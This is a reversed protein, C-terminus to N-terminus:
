VAMLLAALAKPHSLMPFHGADLEIYPAGLREATRRQHAESPNVGQICNIVTASWAHAWFGDLENPGATTGVPHPTYRAMAFARLDTPLAAFMRGDMDERSPARTFETIVYVMSKSPIVIDASTEGPQPVLADAFVLHGVRDRAFEAIRAAVLGGSSTTVLVVNALDQLELFKAIEQAQSAVTIGARAQHTREGCGDLTPAYVEHGAASLVQVTPKWCWGGMFGGHILVFTTM